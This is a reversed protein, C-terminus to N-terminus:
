KSKIKGGNLNFFHNLLKPGSKMVNEYRRQPAKTRSIM